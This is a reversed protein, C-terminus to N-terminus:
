AQSPGAGQEPGQSRRPLVADDPGIVGVDAGRDLLVEVAEAHGNAAAVWTPAKTVTPAHTWNSSNFADVTENATAAVGELSDQAHAISGGRLAIVVFVAALRM